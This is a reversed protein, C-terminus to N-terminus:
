KHMDLITLQLSDKNQYYNRGLRFVLDVRDGRDFDRGYKDAQNWYVAPWKYEGSDLTLRLHQADPKGMARGELITLGRVLFALPPWGEGYPELDEVIRILEPTLHKPTLEADVTLTEEEPAPPRPLAEVLDKIRNEFDAVRSPELSFGAAYDHGGYDIMLDAAHSLFDKANFGKFSRMSGVAKGPMLSVAIAPADFFKVLRSAIIGTIGRQLERHAVFVLRTSFDQYSTKARPLILEWSKDGIKKRDRNLQIIEGALDSLEQGPPALLFRAAIGPCGMRGTANIVPTIQWSVDTPNLVKGALNQQLLLEPTWPRPHHNIIDMGQKVIIRNEGRLPMLDALTGLAALDLKERYEEGLSKHKKIVYSAFLNVFVELEGAPEDRYRVLRSKERLRLLSAGELQPFSQWFFPALDTLQIETGPGFISKLMQAQPGAQYVFIEQSFFAPLRTKEINLMGPVLIERVRDVEALNLLKVAEIIYSEHAPVVNLLCFSRNYFETQSFELAWIMKSVVGCGALDRFPYGSDEMKPNIIAYAPPIEDPPNHHDLVLTDIGLSSAYTIEDVNSIGCDVTIILSGGQAYFQDVVERTLGYPDDGEPLAYSVDIELSQLTQVMLVTSTIGDADRDGFIRVKEKEGAAQLIRDVAEEMEAFEFPNHLFRHDKELYYLLESPRIIGRRVLISATILDVGFREGLSRVEQPSIDAKYWNM